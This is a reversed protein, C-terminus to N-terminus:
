QLTSSPLSIGPSRTSHYGLQCRRSEHLAGRSSAGSAASSAITTTTKPAVGHHVVVTSTALSPSYHATDKSTTRILEWDQLRGSQSVRFANSACKIESVSLRKVLAIVVSFQLLSCSVAKRVMGHHITISYNCSEPMLQM